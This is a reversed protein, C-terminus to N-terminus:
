LAVARYDEFDLLGGTRDLCARETDKLAAWAVADAIPGPTDARIAARVATRVDTDADTM